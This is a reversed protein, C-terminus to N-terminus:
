PYQGSLLAALIKGNIFPIGNRYCNDKDEPLVLLETKFPKRKVEIKVETRLVEGIVTSGNPLTM